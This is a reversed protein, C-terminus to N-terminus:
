RVDLFAASCHGGGEITKNTTDDMRHRYEITVTRSASGLNIEPTITLEDIREEKEKNTDKWLTQSHRIKDGPKKNSINRKTWVVSTALQTIIMM